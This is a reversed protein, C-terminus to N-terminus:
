AAARRAVLRYVQEVESAMRVARFQEEVRKRGYAGLEVRLLPERILRAMHATFAELDDPPALLGSRGHEVAEPVGGSDLGLVPKRMAMAELFVNAFPEEFTPMAYVDAAAFIRPLDARFGTFVLNDLVREQAALERLSAISVRNPPPAAVDEDGVMLVRFDHGLRKLRGAARVLRQPGKWTNFRGSYVFVPLERPIRFEDRIAGGDLNVDWRELDIGNHVCHLKPPPYGLAAASQVVFDSVGILADAHKMATKALPSVWEGLKAHMHIVLRAGGLRAVLQGAVSDRVRDLSHVVDIGERRVYACLGMLSQAAPGLARLAAASVVAGSRLHVNPAFLTPRVRVGATERMRSLFRSDQGELEPLCAVHPEIRQQDCFRVLLEHVVVDGGFTPTAQLFLVKLKPM